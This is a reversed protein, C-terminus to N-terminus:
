DRTFFYLSMPITERLETHMQMTLFTIDMAPRLEGFFSAMASKTNVTHEAHEEYSKYSGKLEEPVSVPDVTVPVSAAVGVLTNAKGEDIIKLAVSLALGGGASTGFTFAVGPTTNLLQTNEVAWEYAFVCDDLPAPYPHQPALRYDVSVIVIGADRSITRVQVDEGDLDGMAWGGGHYFVCVPKNGGYGEPTYIRANLGPRIELDKTAVSQDPAPFDLKSILNLGIEGYKTIM